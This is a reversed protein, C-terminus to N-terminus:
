RPMWCPDRQGVKRGAPISHSKLSFSDVRSVKSRRAGAQVTACTFAKDMEVWGIFDDLLRGDSAHAPELRPFAGREGDSIPGLGHAVPRVTRAGPYAFREPQRSEACMGAM